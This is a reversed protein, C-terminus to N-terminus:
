ADELEREVGDKEASIWPRSKEMPPIPPSNQKRPVDGLLVLFREGAMVFWGGLVSRLNRRNVAATASTAAGM